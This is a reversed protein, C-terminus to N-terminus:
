LSLSSPTYAAHICRPTTHTATTARWYLARVPSVACGGVVAIKVEVECPLLLQALLAKSGQAPYDEAAATPHLLVMQHGYRPSPPAGMTFGKEWYLVYEGPEEDHDEDDEEDLEGPGGPLPAVPQLLTKFPDATPNAWPDETGAVV